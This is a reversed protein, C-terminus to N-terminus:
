LLHEIRIPLRRLRVGTAHHVANAIAASGGAMAVEGLGKLGTANAIPDPEDIMDVEITGIDANVAVVYDALDCNLYGGFRPDTETEERLSASIAWVVGGYIQSRATRPSVVRGCDAITVVRPVRIRRTRPEVRVEVFHAIYSMSTFGPYEPGGVAYGGGQLAALAEAQDQGPATQSVEVQLYPRRTTALQRHANGPVARGDLLEDIRARMQRAAAEAAPVAGATGWSGVTIHQPASATDGIVIELRAPDVDIHQLVAQAIASRIGQGMEHGSLAIRASGDARVRFTTISPVMMAPYAGAAVGWGILTGDGATMSGPRPDRAQWGFRQAGERLCEDLFRSSLANGTLADTETANALRFEVPDRDLAIALEDIASEFGFLAPQPHPCRMFGPNQRDSRLYTSTGLYHPIGYMRPPADHYRDPPPDMGLRSQQQEADHRVAVMRGNVDAGLRIRHQSMPRYTAVHFIQSRPMVLKVPQGLIMAARAVIATQRQTPGRQGFGGGIHPSKVEVLAPDLSLLRALDQQVGSSRQTGEYITLRGEAWVATTALLEMTNHHQTPSIYAQDIVTVANALGAATDGAIVDEIADRTADDGGVTFAEEEFVPRITEAGEIAAELTKAVVLAVPQGRYAIQWTLTPPPPAYDGGSQVPTAPFDDPTFVRVVGPVRMAAAISMEVVVGRVISAPVTIAHLLSPLPMDAAYIPRGLVKERADFRPREAFVASPM